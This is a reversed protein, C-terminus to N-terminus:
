DSEHRIELRAILSIATSPSSVSSRISKACPSRCRRVVSSTGGCSAIPSSASRLRPKRPMMSSRPATNGPLRSSAWCRDSATHAGRRMSTSVCPYWHACRRHRRPRALGLDVGAHQRDAEEIRHWGRPARLHERLLQGTRPAILRVHLDNWQVHVRQGIWGPPAGYYAAEVEVCGDLHVTRAGFRYYRFPELPLPGLAAREEAFM